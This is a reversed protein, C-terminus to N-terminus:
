RAAAMSVVRTTSPWHRCSTRPRDRRRDNSKIMRQVLRSGEKVQLERALEDPLPVAFFGGPHAALLTAQRSNLLRPGLQILFGDARDMWGDLDGATDAALSHEPGYRNNARLWAVVQDRLEQKTLPGQRLTLVPALPRPAPPPAAAAPGPEEATPKRVAFAHRAFLITLGAACVIAASVAALLWGRRSRRGRDKGAAAAPPASPLGCLPALADAVAGATPYRDAPDPALMRKLIAELGAPVDDRVERIPPAAREQRALLKQLPSGDPFPPHGALLHYLTCGLSYVDARIDARQADRAQEPALYDPTGVVADPPVVPTEGMEERAMRALGFDLVKVVGEPTRLLNAPKVDRHVLATSTPM